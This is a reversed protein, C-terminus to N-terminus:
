TIYRYLSLLPFPPLKTFFWLGLHHWSGATPEPPCSSPFTFRASSRRSVAAVSYVILPTSGSEFESGYGLGAFFFIFLFLFLKIRSLLLFYQKYFYFWIYSKILNLEQINKLLEVSVCPSFLTIDNLRSRETVNAEFKVSMLPFIYSMFIVAPNSFLLLNSNVPHCRIPCSTKTIYVNRIM